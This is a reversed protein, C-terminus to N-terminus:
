THIEYFKFALFYFGLFFDEDFRHLSKKTVKRRGDAIQHATTTLVLPHQVTLHM